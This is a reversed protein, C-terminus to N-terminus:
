AHCAAVEIRLATADDLAIRADGLAVLIGGTAGRGVVRMRAGRVFGLEALRLRDGPPVTLRDVRVPRGSRCGHLTM